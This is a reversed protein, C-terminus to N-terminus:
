THPKEFELLSRFTRAEITFHDRPKVFISAQASHFDHM